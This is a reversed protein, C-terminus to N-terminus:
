GELISEAMRINRAGLTKFAEKISREHGYKSFDQDEKTGAGLDKCVIVNELKQIVGDASVLGGYLNFFNQDAKKIPCIPVEAGFEDMDVSYEGRGLEKLAMINVAGFIIITMYESLGFNKESAYGIVSVVNMLTLVFGCLVLARNLYTSRYVECAIFFRFDNTSYSSTWLLQVAIVAVAWVTWCAVATIFVSNDQFSCVAKLLDIGGDCTYVRYDSGCINSWHSSTQITYYSDPDDPTFDETAVTKGLNWIGNISNIYLLLVPMALM